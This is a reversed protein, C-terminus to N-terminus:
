GAFAPDRLIGKIDNNWVDLTCDAAHEGPRVYKRLDPVIGAFM